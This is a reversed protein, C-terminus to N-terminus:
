KDGFSEPDCLYPYVDDLARDWSSHRRAITELAGASLRRRLEADEVLRNLQEVIGEVSRMTVLSNAENEFLWSFWTSDPAVMPVGCAMLELPLYSPHRSIQMTLGIDTERYLNGTQRYDLLGLDIFDASEPLYRAGAAVVRVRDGHIAKVESLAAYVLEWCNRFHDRAYAFITVPEDASKERRGMAHFISGDVAPMFDLIKGSYQERYIAGMSPTNGLGYLGLRYSEEAMAFMSSAPYFGPEFDQILYFKRPTGPSKAVHQATLWLTAVAVDAPPIVAISEDNGDYFFVECGALEPFAAAFASQFFDRNEEALVIFRNRVGRDRTLKAAIRFATNLGGFFPTDIDPIFWNVVRVDQPGVTSEHSRRVAEVDAPSVSGLNILDEAEKSITSAQKVKAFSRGLATLALQNPSVDRKNSLRPTSSLPSVNPSMYPDGSELWPQYRWYSGFFDGRPIETGRTASELHRITDFPIVVNRRGKIYQDIGLVVDSGCLVLKEDLGTVDEFDSRRIAVCAATVALTNRYWATPGLLTESNPKLGAFLNDAFGGPGIVVGGHQIRGDARRHQVGVSGVGNRCLHGVVERLWRPDVIETDDNLLVLVEGRTARAAVNNVRSYNFPQETWWSVTLELNGRWREYWVINADTQEGNDVIMVDFSPYDTKSLSALLVELNTRNHRTPIVISVLPMVSPEFFTRVVGSDVVATASEGRQSLVEVVMQADDPNVIDETRVSESLLVLPLRSVERNDFQAELLFRWVGRDDVKLHGVRAITRTSVAFSRGLYNAGLLTEPSWSPRFRPSRRRGMFRRVDSDFTILGAAPDARHHQEIAALSHPSFVSGAKVVIVFGQASDPDQLTFLEGTKLVLLRLLTNDNAKLSKITRQIERSSTSEHREVIVLLPLKSEVKRHGRLAHDHTRIWRGYRRTGPRKTPWLPSSEKASKYSSRAGALTRYWIVIVRRRKTRLPFLRNAVRFVLSKM